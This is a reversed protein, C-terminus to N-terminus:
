NDLTLLFDSNLLRSVLQINLQDFLPISINLGDDGLSFNLKILLAIGTQDIIVVNVISERERERERERELSFLIVMANIQMALQQNM